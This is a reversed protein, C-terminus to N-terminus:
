NSIDEKDTIPKGCLQNLTPQKLKLSLRLREDRADLGDNVYKTALLTQIDPDAVLKGNVVVKPIIQRKGDKPPTRPDYGDLVALRNLVADAVEGAADDRANRLDTICANRKQTKFGTQTLSNGTNSSIRGSNAIWAVVLLGAVIVGLGAIMWM